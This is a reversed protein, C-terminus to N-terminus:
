FGFGKFFKKFVGEDKSKTEFFSGYGGQERKSQPGSYFEVTSDFKNVPAEDMAFLKFLEISEQDLDKPYKLHIQAIFDGNTSPDPVGQGDFM